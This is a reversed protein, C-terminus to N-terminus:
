TFGPGIKPNAESDTFSYALPRLGTMPCKTWLHFTPVSFIQGYYYSENTEEVQSKMWGYEHLIMTYVAPNEETPHIYYVRM